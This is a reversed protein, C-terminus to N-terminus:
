PLGQMVGERALLLLLLLQRGSGESGSLQMPPLKPLPRQRCCCLMLLAPLDQPCGAVAQLDLLPLLALRLVQQQRLLGCACECGQVQWKLFRALPWPLVAAPCHLGQVQGAADHAPLPGHWCVLAWPM